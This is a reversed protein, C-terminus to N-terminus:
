REDSDIEERLGYETMIDEALEDLVNQMAVDGYQSANM